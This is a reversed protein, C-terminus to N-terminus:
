QQKPVANGCAVLTVFFMSTSPASIINLQIRQPIIKITSNINGVEKQNDDPVWERSMWM